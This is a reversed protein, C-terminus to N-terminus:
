KQLTSLVEALTSSSTAINKGKVLAQVNSLLNNAYPNVQVGLQQLTTFQIEYRYLNPESVSRQVRFSLPIVKYYEENEWDYWFMEYQPAYTTIFDRYFKKRLNQIEQYGDTVVGETNTRANYGTVGSITVTHLGQGFLSLYAGGLTQTVTARHPEDVSMDSPNVLLTHRYKSVGNNKVEFTQRYFRRKQTSTALQPMTM